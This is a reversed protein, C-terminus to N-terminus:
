VKLTLAIILPEPSNIRIIYSYHAFRNSLKILTLNDQTAPKPPTLDADSTETVTCAINDDMIKALKLHCISKEPQAVVDVFLVSSM